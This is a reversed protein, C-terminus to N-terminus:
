ECNSLMDSLPGFQRTQAPAARTDGAELEWFHAGSWCDVSGLQAAVAAAAVAAVAFEACEVAVKM